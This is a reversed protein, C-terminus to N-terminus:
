AILRLAFPYRYTGGGQVKVGGIIPFVIQAAWLAITLLLAILSGIIPIFGLVVGVITCAVWAIALTIQYNLSEKAEQNVLPGRDKLILWILLPPIFSLVGGFHALSAWLKDDAQSLPAGPTPAPAPTYHPPPAQGGAPNGGAPSGYPPPTQGGSGPETPPTANPDSM